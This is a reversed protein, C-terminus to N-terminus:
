NNENEAKKGPNRVRSLYANDNKAYKSGCLYNIPYSVPDFMSALNFKNSWMVICLRGKEM